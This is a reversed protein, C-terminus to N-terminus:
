DTFESSRWATLLGPQDAPRPSFFPGGALRRGFCCPPMVVDPLVDAQDGRAFLARM